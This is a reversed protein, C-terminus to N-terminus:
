RHSISNYLQVLKALAKSLYHDGVGLIMSIDKVGNWRRIGFAMKMVLSIRM